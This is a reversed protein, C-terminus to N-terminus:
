QGGGQKRHAALAKRCRVTAASYYLGAGELRDIAHELAEVLGSVDPSPQQETPQPAAYLAQGVKVTVDPLIDAWMGDDAADVVAVPEGQVAPQPDTYIAVCERYRPEKIINARVGLEDNKMLELASRRIYGVPEGKVASAVLAKVLEPVKLALVDDQISGDDSTRVEEGFMEGIQCVIGRYFDENRAYQAATERWSEAEGQVDPSAALMAKYVGAWTRPDDSLGKFRRENWYSEAAREMEATPEVPVLKYDTM